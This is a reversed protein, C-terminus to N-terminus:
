DKNHTSLIIIELQEAYNKQARDRRVIKMWAADTLCAVDSSKIKELVPREPLPLPRTIYEIDRTCGSGIMILSIVAVTQWIRM